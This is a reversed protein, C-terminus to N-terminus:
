GCSQQITKKNFFLRAARSATKYFKDKKLTKMKKLYIRATEIDGINKYFVALNLYVYAMKDGNKLSLREHEAYYKKALEVNGLIEYVNALRNSSLPSALIRHTRRAITIARKEGATALIQALFINANISINDKLSKGKKIIEECIRVSRILGENSNIDYQRNKFSDHYLFSALLLLLKDKESGINEQLRKEIIKVGISWHGKRGLIALRDEIINISM